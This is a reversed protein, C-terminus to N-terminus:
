LLDIVANERNPQLFGSGVTPSGRMDSIVSRLYMEALQKNQLPYADVEKWTVTNLDALDIYTQITNKV